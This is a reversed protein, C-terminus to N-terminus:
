NAGDLADGGHSRQKVNETHIKCSQIILTQANYASLIPTCDLTLSGLETRAANAYANSIFYEERASM